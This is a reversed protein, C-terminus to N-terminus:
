RWVTTNPFVAILPRQVDVWEGRRPVPSGAAVFGISVHMHPAELLEVPQRAFHFPSRGDNTAIGAASGAGIILLHGDAPVASARYGATSGGRVEHVALVEAGLHLFEKAGHWLRSGVRQHLGRRPNADRLAAWAHEGVHSVWVDADTPLQALWHEIEAIRQQDTGALPLHLGYALVEQDRRALEALVPNLETITAGFRQMSSRLKVIVSGRWEGLAAVDALSGVTLVVSDDLDAPIAAAPTLVVPRIGRVVHDLEYLNGVCVFPALAAAVTHLHARGFGYGNGKVVPILGPLAAVTADIHATWRDQDITLRLTM